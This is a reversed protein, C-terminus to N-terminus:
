TDLARWKNDRWRIYGHMAILHAYRNIPRAISADVEGYTLLSQAAVMLRLIEHTNTHATPCLWIGNRGHIGYKTDEGGMALPRIHHWEFTLPAPRHEAVCACTAAVDYRGHFPESM